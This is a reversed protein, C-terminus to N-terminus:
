SEFRISDIIAELEHVDVPASGARYQTAIVVREGGVDIAYVSMAGDTLLVQYYDGSDRWIQLGGNFRCELPDSGNPPSLDLRKGHHGGITVEFPGDKVPGVQGLLARMLDDVTPGIPVERQLPGCADAYVDDLMFSAWGVERRLNPYKSITQGSNEMEWGRPLDFTVPVPTFFRYSMRYRGPALAQTPTQFHVPLESVGSPAGVADPRRLVASGGALAGGLVVLVLLAAALEVALGSSARLGGIWRSPRQPTTAAHAVIEQYLGFPARGSRARLMQEIQGDTLQAPRRRM